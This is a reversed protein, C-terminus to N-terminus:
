DPREGASDSCVRREDNSAVHEDEWLKLTIM